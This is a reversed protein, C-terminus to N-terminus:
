RLDLLALNVWTAHTTTGICSFPAFFAVEWGMVGQCSVYGKSKKLRAKVHELRKFFNAEALQRIDQSQHSQYFFSDFVVYLAWTILLPQQCGLLRLKEYVVLPVFPHGVSPYSGTTKLMQFAYYAFIGSAAWVARAQLWAVDTSPIWFWFYPRHRGGKM